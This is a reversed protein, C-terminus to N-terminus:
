IEALSSSPLELDRSQLAHLQVANPSRPIPVLTRQRARLLVSLDDCDKVMKPARVPFPEQPVGDAVRLVNALEKEVVGVKAVTELPDDVVKLGRQELLWRSDEELEADSAGPTRKIFRHGDFEGV